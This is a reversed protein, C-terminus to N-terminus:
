RRTVCACAHTCVCVCVIVCSTRDVFLRCSSWTIDGFEKLKEGLEDAVAAVKIERIDMKRKDRERIEREQIQRNVRERRHM